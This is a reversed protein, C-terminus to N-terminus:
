FYHVTKICVHRITLRLIRFNIESYIGSINFFLGLWEDKQLMQLTREKCKNNETILIPGPQALVVLRRHVSGLWTNQVKSLTNYNAIVCSHFM